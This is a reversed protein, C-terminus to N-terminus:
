FVSLSALKLNLTQNLDPLNSVYHITPPTKPCLQHLSSRFHNTLRAPPLQRSYTSSSSPSYGLFHLVNLGKM